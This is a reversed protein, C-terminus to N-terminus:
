QKRYFYLYINYVIDAIEAVKEIDIESYCGVCPCTVLPGKNKM